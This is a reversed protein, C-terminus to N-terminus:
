RLRCRCFYSFINKYKTDLNSNQKIFKKKLGFDYFQILETRGDHGKDCPHTCDVLSTYIIKGFICLNIASISM